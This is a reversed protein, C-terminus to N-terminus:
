QKKHMIRLVQRWTTVLLGNHGQVNQKVSFKFHCFSFFFAELFEWYCNTSSLFTEQPMLFLPVIVAGICQPIDCCPSCEEVCTGMATISPFDNNKREMKDEYYGNEKMYMFLCINFLIETTQTPSSTAATTITRCHPMTASHRGTTWVVLLTGLRCHVSLLNVWHCCAAAQLTRWSKTTSRRDSHLPAETTM